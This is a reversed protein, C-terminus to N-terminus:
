KIINKNYINQLKFYYKTKYQGSKLVSPQNWAVQAQSFNNTIQYKGWIENAFIEIQGRWDTRPIKGRACENWQILGVSCGQDGRRTETMAGNEQFIQAILRKAQEHNFGKEQAYKYLYDAREQKYDPQNLLHITTEASQPAILFRFWM